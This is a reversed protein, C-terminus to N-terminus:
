KDSRGISVCRACREICTPGSDRATQLAAAGPSLDLLVPIDRRELESLAYAVNGAWVISVSAAALQRETETRESAPCGLHLVAKGHTVTSAEPM